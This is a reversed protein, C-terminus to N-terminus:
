SKILKNRNYTYFVYVGGYYILRFSTKTVWWSLALAIDFSYYAILTVIM